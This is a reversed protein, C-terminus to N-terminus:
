KDRINLVMLWYHGTEKPNEKDLISECRSLRRTKNDFHKDIDNRTFSNNPFFTAVRLPMLRKKPRLGAERLAIIAMEALMSDMKQGPAMSQALENCSIYLTDYNKIPKSNDAQRTHTVSYQCVANYIDRVQKSCYFPDTNELCIYPSRLQAPARVVRREHGVAAPTRSSSAVNEVTTTATVPTKSNQDNIQRGNRLREEMELRENEKKLAFAKEAEYCVKQLEELDLGWEDGSESM